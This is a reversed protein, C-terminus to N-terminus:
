TNFILINMLEAVVPPTVMNGFLDYKNVNSPIIFDRPFGCIAKIENNTLKRIHIDEIIVALKSCDTATLTPSIDSPDLIKSIPFSLKGKCINYGEESDEKYVRKGDILDKCKELKLYKKAVLDDLMESLSLESCLELSHKTEYFTSIEDFTLPMGDMWVINKEEAWHKKRRETMIKKMLQRQELSIAGNMGIDWSHINDSGGRKDQLKCGFLDNYQHLELLKSALREDIDTYQEDYEIVNDLVYQKKLKINDMNIEHTLCCIIYVRERSQPVNFHKSNLKKFNVFYGISEFMNVIKRIIAGKNITLLNSVNELVIYEPKHQECIELIKFIMGGRDDKFGQKKGASSFSQCPFGACLMNFEPISDIDIDYIDTPEINENFNINYTKIADKKIDVSYVCSFSFQPNSQQFMEIGIRFGGIGCCMDVYKIESINNSKNYSKNNSKNKVIKEM